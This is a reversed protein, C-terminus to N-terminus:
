LSIRFLLANCLAPALHQQLLCTLTTDGTRRTRLGKRAMRLGKRAMISRPILCLYKM